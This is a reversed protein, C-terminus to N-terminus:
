FCLSTACKAMLLSCTVTDSSALTRPKTFRVLSSCLPYLMIYLSHFILSPLQSPKSSIYFVLSSKERFKSHRNFRSTTTQSAVTESERERTLVTLDEWLSRSHYSFTRMWSTSTEVVVAGESRIGRRIETTLRGSDLTM